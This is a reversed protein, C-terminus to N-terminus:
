IQYQRGVIIERFEVQHHISWQVNSQLVSCIRTINLLAILIKQVLKVSMWKGCPFNLYVKLLKVHAENFNAM